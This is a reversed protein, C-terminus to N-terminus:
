RGNQGGGNSQNRRRRSPGWGGDTVDIVDLITESLAKADQGKIGLTRATEIFLNNREAENLRRMERHSRGLEEGIERRQDDTLDEREMMDSLEERRIILNQLDEHVKRAKKNMHSVDISSLFDLNSQAREMRRMRWQAMNNTVQVYRAPDTKKLNDLWERHNRPAPVHEAEAVENSNSQADAESEALLKELEDVRKRLSAITAADGRNTIGSKVPRAVPQPKASQPEPPTKEGAVYGIAVGVFLALAVFLQYKITKM